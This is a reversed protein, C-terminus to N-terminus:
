FRIEQGLIGLRRTTPVIGSKLNRGWGWAHFIAMKGLLEGEMKVVSGAPLSSIDVMLRMRVGLSLNILIELRGLDFDQVVMPHVTEGGMFLLGQVGKALPGHLQVMDLGPLWLKWMSADRVLEWIEEPAALTKVSHSTSFM